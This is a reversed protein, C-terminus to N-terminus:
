FTANLGFSYTKPIPQAYPNGMTEPDLFGNYDKAFVFPNRVEGQFRVNSLRIKKGIHEPLRYGLTINRVRMYGGNKVWLDLTNYYGQIEQWRGSMLLDAPIDGNLGTGILGPYKGNPNEPTWRDLIANNSNFGRNYDTIGYYPSIKVKQGLNFMLGVALDFQKYTFNNNIGGTYLPDATGSYQYLARMQETSYGSTPYMGELGPIGAFEDQLNFFENITVVKGDKHMMIIGDKGVGAFPLTFIANVPYGERSPTLVNSGQSERLVKNKNYSFNFNTTWKFDKRSINRTSISVEVGSNTMEAWNMVNSYFGTELPVVQTNILDKGRREYVDVSFGLVDKFLSMDLGVNYNITKEWRLKANPPTNVEIGGISGGPLVTVPKYNGKVFPSTSKDINGQLGYSARLNLTNIATVNRMFPEEAVRWLGSVSWLPLYKYKPDVGFMDSGDFRISGMVTYKNNYTYSASGFYSVFANEVRGYRDKHYAKADNENGTIVPETTLTQPNYGYGTTNNTTFEVNRIENGAMLSFDHVNKIKFDYEAMTKLTYQALENNEKNIIGGNPLLPVKKGTVPDYRLSLDREYRTFYTNALAIRDAHSSERQVGFQSSIRLGPMIEYALKFNANLAQTNLNNQTNAREELANFDIVNDDGQINRDYVYNGAADTVLSYPNALRSYEVPNTYRGQGPLFSSQKRQNAFLGVGFKLKSTIDYDTKFTLNYRKASAGITAGQEDFYGGSFYYTAKDSGGSVSVAHEQTIANRFLLSNWDTHIGRLADIEKRAGADIGSYGLTALDSGSINYRNLIRSVDGMNSRYDYNSKYLDLELNVKQDSNMLNLRSLDPRQTFTFNNRYNVSIRDGKKGSKTTVVIVGNAARAGYIATAAADKLVTISEIDSPNLGAISSTYLQELNNGDTAPLDAGEIPLGDLVWLPDQAGQLSSTGRIRIKPSAGPAGTSTTIAMGAVQGQLMQDVSMVGAMQVKAADIKEVAGTSKTKKITQYGTFVFENLTKGGNLLVTYENATGVPLDQTEYGIYSVVLKKVIVDTPIKISFEGKENTISGISINAIVNDEGTVTGITKNDVYVSVGILPEKSKIDLVKGRIIRQNDQAVSWQAQGCLVLLLVFSVVGRM